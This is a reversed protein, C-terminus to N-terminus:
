VHTGVSSRWFLYQGAFSRSFFHDSRVLLVDFGIMRYMLGPSPSMGAMGALAPVVSRSSGMAELTARRPRMRARQAHEASEVQNELDDLAVRDDADLAEPAGAVEIKVNCNSCPHDCRGETLCLVAREEPQDCIYLLIRVFAMISSTGHSLAIGMHSRAIVDRFALYLMRQLLGSRRQRGKDIANTEQLKKVLPIYAVTSWGVKALVVNVLRIRM